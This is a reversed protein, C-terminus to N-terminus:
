DNGDCGGALRRATVLDAETNVNFFSLMNSDLRRLEDEEVIRTKVRKPLDQVRFEGAGLMEEIASLCAATYVAHLPEILGGVRPIVAEVEGGLRVLYRLLPVSLFPMDAGVVLSVANRACKLGSYIGMLPGKGPSVDAVARVPVDSRSGPLKSQATVVIVEDAVASVREIVREFITGCGVVERLKDRGLRLSKGGALVIASTQLAAESRLSHSAGMRACAGPAGLCLRCRCAVHGDSANGGHRFCPLRRRTVDRCGPTDFDFMATTMVGGAFVM